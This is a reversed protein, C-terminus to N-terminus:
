KVLRGTADFMKDGRLIYLTGNILVKTSQVGDSKVDGLGTPDVPDPDKITIDFAAGDAWGSVPKGMVDTSRVAWDITYTGPTLKYEKELESLLTSISNKGMTNSMALITEGNKLLLEYSPAGDVKDWSLTIREDEGVAERAVSLNQPTLDANKEYQAKVTLDETVNTFGKDWGTFTYGDRVPDDPAVADEGYKIVQASLQTDDWDVFRVTVYVDDFLPRIDLDSQVHEFDKDWGTFTHGEWVQDAPAGAAENWKVTQSEGIQKGDKDFFRVTYTNIEYLPKITLDSTVNTCANDWGTFHYGTVDPATPPTADKGHEVKGSQLPNGDKDLFTVTYQKLAFVATYAADGTVAVQRTAKTEHDEKWEVFEYGENPTATLTRLEQYSAKGGGDVSGGEAPEVATTITYEKPQIILEVVFDSYQGVKEFTVTPTTFYRDETLWQQFFYHDDLVTCSLTVDDGWGYRGAGTCSVIGPTAGVINLEIVVNFSDKEFSAVYEYNRTITVTRTERTSEEGANDNWGTFNIHDGAPTAIIEVKSDEWYLDSGKSVSADGLPLCKVSGLSEDASKVTVTYKDAVKISPHFVVDETVVFFLENEESVVNGYNDTWEDIVYREPTKKGLFEIVAPSGYPLTAYFGSNSKKEGNLKFQDTEDAGYCDSMCPEFGVEVSYEKVSIGAILNMGDYVHEAIPNSSFLEDKDDDYWGKFTYHETDSLELKINAENCTSVKASTKEEWKWNTAENAIYLKAVSSLQPNGLAINLDHEVENVCIRIVTDSTLEFEYKGPDTTGDPWHDFTLDGCPSWFSLEAKNDCGIVAQSATKGNIFISYKDLYYEIPRPNKEGVIEFSYKYDTVGDWTKVPIDKWGDAAKYAEIDTCSGAYFTTVKDEFDFAGAAAPIHGADYYTIIADFTSGGPLQFAKTGITLGEGKEFVLQENWVGSFAKAGISKVSGPITLTSHLLYNSVSADEFASEGIEEIGDLYLNGLMAKKFANAPVAKIRSFTLKNVYNDGFPYTIDADYHWDLSDIEAGIFANEEFTQGKYLEPSNTIHLNAFVFDGISKVNGDIYLDLALFEFPAGSIDAIPSLDTAKFNLVRLQDKINDLAGKSVIKTSAPIVISDILPCNDIFNDSFMTIKDGWDINKLKPLDTLTNTQVYAYDDNVFRVSELEPMNTIAYPELHDADMDFSRLATGSLAYEGIYGLKPALKLDTLKADNAFLYSNIYKVKSGSLDVSALEACDQFVSSGMEELNASGTFSELKTGMFAGERIATLSEPLEITKLASEAFCYAALVNDLGDSVMGKIKVSELDLARYFAYDGLSLQEDADTNKNHYQPIVLEGKLKSSEFAREGITQINNGFRIGEIASYLFAEEDIEGREPTGELDLDLVQKFSFTYAFSQKGFSYAPYAPSETFNKPMTLSKIGSHAFCNEGFGVYEFPHGYDLIIVDFPHSVNEFLHAPVWVVGNEDEAPAIHVSEIPCNAFPYAADEMLFSFNRDLWVSKIGSDKFASRGLKELRSFVIEENLSVCGEFAYDGISSFLSGSEDTGKSRFSELASHYTREGMGMGMGMDEEEYPAAFAYDGIKIETVDPGFDVTKLNPHGSFANNGIEIVEGGEFVIEELVSVEEPMFMSLDRNCSYFGAKITTVGSQFVIRKVYPAFTVGDLYFSEDFEWNFDDEWDYKFYGHAIDEFKAHFQSPFVLEEEAPGYYGELFVGNEGTEYDYDLRLSWNGTEDYAYTQIIEARASLAMVLM